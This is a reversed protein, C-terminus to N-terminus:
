RALEGALRGALRRWSYDQLVKEQGAKAVARLRERDRALREISDSIRGRDRIIVGTRGDKILYPVAGVSTAMVACGAAMAELVSNPLGEAYSALVHIDSAAFVAPIDKRFGEFRIYPYEKELGKRKEPYKDGCVFLFRIDHRAKLREAADLVAKYGKVEDLRGLYTVLLADKKYSVLDKAPGAKAFAEPDIGNPIVKYPLHLRKATPILGDHLLFVKKAGRLVLKGLTRTYIWLFANLVRSPAFWDYGPFTDTQVSYPIRRLRCQLGVLSSFFMYKSVLIADPHEQRILRAADSFIRPTVTYNFPDPVYWAPTRHVEVGEITEQAKSGQTRSTLVVVRWGAYKRLNVATKYASVMWATPELFNPAVLLLTPM